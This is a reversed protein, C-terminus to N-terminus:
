GMEVKAFDLAITEFVLGGEQARLPSYGLSVPAARHFRWRMVSTAADEALLDITVTRRTPAKAVQRAGM